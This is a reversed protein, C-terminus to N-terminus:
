FAVCVVGAAFFVGGWFLGVLFGVGGFFEGFACGM